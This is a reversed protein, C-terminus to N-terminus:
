QGDAEYLGDAYDRPISVESTSTKLDLCHTEMLKETIRRTYSDDDTGM